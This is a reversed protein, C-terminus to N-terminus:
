FERYFHANNIKLQAKTAGYVQTKETDHALFAGAGILSSSSVVVGNKITCNNGFFSFDKIIVDGSVSAGPAFFNYDGVQTHHAINVNSWLVNGKGLKVFPQVVVHELIVTGSDICANKAICSTPHFYSVVQFGASCIVEVVAKRQQNMQYYGIAPLVDHEDRSFNNCIKEFSILKVPLNHQKPFYKENVTFAVVDLRSEQTCYYYLMQAYNSIGFIIIKKM